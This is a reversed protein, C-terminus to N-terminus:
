SIPSIAGPQRRSVAHRQSRLFAEAGDGRGPLLVVLGGGADAFGSGGGVEGV